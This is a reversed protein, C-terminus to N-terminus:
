PDVSEFNASHDIYREILWEGTNMKKWILTYSGKHPPVKEGSKTSVRSVFDATEIAWGGATRIRVDSVSYDYDLEAFPKKLWNRINEKGQIAESRPPFWVADETVVAM